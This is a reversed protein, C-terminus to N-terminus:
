FISSNLIYHGISIKRPLVYVTFVTFRKKDFLVDVYVYFYYLSADGFPMKM